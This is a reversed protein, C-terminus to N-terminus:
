SRINPIAPRTSRTRRGPASRCRASGSRSASRTTRPCRSTAFLIVLHEHWINLIEGFTAESMDERLDIGAIEAGLAPSLPKVTLTM